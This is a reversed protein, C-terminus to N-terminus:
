DKQVDEMRYIQTFLYEADNKIMYCVVQCRVFMREVSSCDFM